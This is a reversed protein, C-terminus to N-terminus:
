AGVPQTPLEGKFAYFSCHIDVILHIRDAESNNVVEHELANNFWWAEGTAMSVAEEGCEFRVGPASAIVYHFRSYYKCHEPTDAHRYIRGGPRIRNVMVRGLREGCVTNMLSFILTRTSPLHLAGDMWVCEHQDKQSRELESVSATPFRVFVTEVDKFPGQPYDRLYTDERWLHPQRALEVALPLVNCASALKLFNRM